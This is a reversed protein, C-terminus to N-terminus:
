GKELPETDRWIDLHELTDRPEHDVELVGDKLDHFQDINMEAELPAGYFRMLMDPGTRCNSALTMMNIHKSNRLCFMIATHRLSYLTRDRGDDGVKLNAKKLVHAFHLQMMKMAHDRGKFEPFFVFDDPKGYGLKENFKTLDKYINLAANMTVVPAQKVKGKAKIRLYDKGVPNKVVTIDRNKLVKIDQPRLFTNVLFMTLYKLQVTIPHFRVVVKDKVEQDITKKLHEYQEENFWERPNDKVKVSPFIPLKDIMGMNHAHRLLKNLVIFHNRITSSSLNREDLHAVYATLRRFTINRIQDNKFFDKLDKDFIHQADDVVSQKISDGRKVRARDIEQMENFTREFQGNGGETLPINQARKLLLENYFDKAKKQALSKIKTGSSKHIRRNNMSARMQWHKSAPIRFLKLQHPFGPITELSGPIPNSRKSM